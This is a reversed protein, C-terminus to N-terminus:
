CRDFLGSFSLSIVDAVMAVSDEEHEKHSITGMKINHLHLPTTTKGIELSVIVSNKHVVYVNVFHISIRM